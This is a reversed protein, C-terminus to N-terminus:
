MREYIRLSGDTKPTSVVPFRWTSTLPEIFNYDLREQAIKGIKVNQRPNRPEPNYRGTSTKADGIDIHHFHSKCYSSARVLDSV